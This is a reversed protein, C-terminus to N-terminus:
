SGVKWSSGNWEEYRVGGASYVVVKAYREGSFLVMEGAGTSVRGDPAFEVHYVSGSAPTFTIPSGADPRAVSVVSPLSLSRLVLDDSSTTTGNTDVVSMTRAGLDMVFRCPRNRKVSEIRAARVLTGGNHVAGRMAERALRPVTAVAGLAALMTAMTLVILLESV